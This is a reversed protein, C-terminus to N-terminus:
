VYKESHIQTQLWKVREEYQAKHAPADFVLYTIYKWDEEIVNKDKKKV